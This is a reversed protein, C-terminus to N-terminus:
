NVPFKLTIRGAILGEIEPKLKGESGVVTEPQPLPMTSAFAEIRDTGAPGDVTFEYDANANPIRIEAGPRILHHTEYANPFITFIEGKSNIHLLTVYLPKETAVFLAISEGIRYHEASLRLKFPQIGAEVNKPPSQMTSMEGDGTAEDIRQSVRTPPKIAEAARGNQEAPRYIFWALVTLLVGGVTAIAALSKIKPQKPSSIELLFQDISRTRNGQKLELGHLLGNWQAKTISTIPAPKAKMDYAQQANSRSFPHKGTLLEYVVCALAYIDDRPDVPQNNLRELSAYSPSYANLTQSSFITTDDYNHGPKNFRSAIGLDLVKVHGEEDVFVNGPKFDAHVIGNKHAHSLAAAMNQILPWAKSFPIGSTYKKLLTSLPQGKLLEMSLYINNGDRDFDYVAIINPHALSKAKKAERQM